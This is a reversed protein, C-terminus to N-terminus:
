DVASPPIPEQWSNGVWSLVTANEAVGAQTFIQLALEYITLHTKPVGRTSERLRHLISGSPGRWVEGDFEFRKGQIDAVLHGTHPVSM